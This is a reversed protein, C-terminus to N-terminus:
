SLYSVEREEWLTPQTGFVFVLAEPAVVDPNEKGLKAGDGEVGDHEKVEAAPHHL